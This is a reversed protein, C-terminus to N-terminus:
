AGVVVQKNPSCGFFVIQSPQSNLQTCGPTDPFYRREATPKIRPRPPTGAPLFAAIEGATSSQSGAMSISTFAFTPGRSTFEARVLTLLSAVVADTSRRGSAGITEILGPLSM